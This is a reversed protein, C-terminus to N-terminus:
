DGDDGTFLYGNSLEDIQIGTDGATVSGHPCGGSISSVEEASLERAKLHGFCQGEPKSHELM